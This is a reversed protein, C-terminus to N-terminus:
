GVRLGLVLVSIFEGCLVVRLSLLKVRRTDARCVCDSLNSVEDAYYASPSTPTCFARQLGFSRQKKAPRQEGSPSLETEERIKDM